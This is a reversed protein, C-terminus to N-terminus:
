AGRASEREAVPGDGPHRRGLLVPGAFFGRPPRRHSLLRLGRGLGDQAYALVTELTSEDLQGNEFKDQLFIALLQEAEKQPLISLVKDGYGDAFLLDIFYQWIGEKAPFRLKRAQSLNGAAICEAVAWLYASTESRFRSFDGYARAWEPFHKVVPVVIRFYDRPLIEGGVLLGKQELAKRDAETRGKPIEFRGDYLTVTWPNLPFGGRYACYGLLRFQGPTLGPFAEAVEPPLSLEKKSPM